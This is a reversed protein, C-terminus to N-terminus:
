VGRTGAINIAVLLAGLMLAGLLFLWDEKGTKLTVIYSRTRFAGFARSDMAVGMLTARRMATMVLPVVLAPYAKLKAFLRGSDFATFGRLKQANMIDTIESRLRPLQNLATTATFAIKYSLGASVMSLSLEEITTTFLLLPLTCMLTLVRLCLLLGFLVGELSINGTGGILPVARPIVPKLLFTQGPYFLSQMLVLLLFLPLMFRIYLVVTGLGPGSVKWFLVIVGFLLLVALFSKLVFLLMTFLLLVATKIRPDIRHLLSNGPRYSIPGDMFGITGM